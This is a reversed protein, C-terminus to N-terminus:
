YKLTVALVRKHSWHQPSQPLLTQLELGVWAVSNTGTLPTKTNLARSFTHVAGLPCVPRQM